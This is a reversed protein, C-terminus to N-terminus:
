GDERRRQNTTNGGKLKRDSLDDLIKEFAVRKLEPNKVADVAKKAQAVLDTYNPQTM